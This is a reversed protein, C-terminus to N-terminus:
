SAAAAAPGDLLSASEGDLLLRAQPTRRLVSAPCDPSVPDLLAARVAAAKRAEPALVLVTPPALLAPITVTVAHSPVEDLDAFHGEGVQQARSAEDLAVLRVPEPGAFDAPPDNFALHGNEGVGMVTVVPPEARLLGAYRRIEAAVPSRNADIGHFARPRVQDVLETRLFHRFSAPHTPPLDVYEDMHLVAIRDWAVDSRERLYRLFGLQSNGTALLVAVTPAARLAAGVAAAFADSADAALEDETDFLSVTLADFCRDRRPM